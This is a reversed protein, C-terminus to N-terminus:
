EKKNADNSESSTKSKRTTKKTSVKKKLFKIKDRVIAAEEFAEAEIKKQLDAELKEIEIQINLKEDVHSPRKGFHQASGHIKQILPLLFQAFVEYCQACGVKGKKQLDQISLNCGPCRMKLQKSMEDSQTTFQMLGALIDNLSFSVKNAIDKENACKECLHVEVMKGEILETVHITAKNKGCSNCIM